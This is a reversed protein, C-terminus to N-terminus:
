NHSFSFWKLEWEWFLNSYTGPFAYPSAYFLYPGFEESPKFIQRALEYGIRQIESHNFYKGDSPFLEVHVQLYDDANFSINGLSVSGPALKLHTEMQTELALFESSDSLDSFSPARFFLTGQFPQACNCSQPNPKLDTGCSKSGCRALDTSYSTYQAQQPQCFPLNSLTNCVPNGYLRCCLLESFYEMYIRFICPFM